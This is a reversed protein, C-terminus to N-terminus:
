MSLVGKGAAPIESLFFRESVSFVAMVCYGLTVRRQVTLM